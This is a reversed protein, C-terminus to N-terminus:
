AASAAPPQTDRALLSSLAFSGALLAIVATGVMVEKGEYWGSVDANLWRALGFGAVAFSIAAVMLGM